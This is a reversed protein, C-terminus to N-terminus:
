PSSRRETLRCTSSRGMSCLARLMPSLYLLEASHADVAMEWRAMGPLRQFGFVWALRHGYGSGAPGDFAEGLTFQPPSLPLIELAAEKWIRDSSTRGGVYEFAKKMAVAPPVSPAIDIRVNGWIETGSLILNGHNIVALLRGWRVPIGSVSQPISVHWLFDNIKTVRAAGLQRIDIGYVDQNMSVFKLFVDAVARNDIKSVARGLSHSVDALTLRNEKGSGPIMPISTVLNIAAGSRPDMFVIVQKGYRRTFRDLAPRNPLPTEPKVPLAAKSIYLEPLSFVKQALDPQPAAPQFAFCPLAFLMLASFIRIRYCIM